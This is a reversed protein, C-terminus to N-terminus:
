RLGFASAVNGDADSLEDLDGGRLLEAELEERHSDIELDLESPEILDEDIVLDKLAQTVATLTIQGGILAQIVTEILEVKVELGQLKTDLDKGNM